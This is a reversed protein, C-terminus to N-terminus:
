PQVESQQTNGLQVETQPTNGLQVETQQTNGLQVESQSTNEHPIRPRIILAYFRHDIPWPNQNEDGPM